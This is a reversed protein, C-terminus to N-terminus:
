PDPGDADDADADDGGDRNLLRDLRYFWRNLQGADEAPVGGVPSREQELAARHRMAALGEYWDRRGDRADPDPTAPPQTLHDAFQDLLRGLGYHHLHRALDDADLSAAESMWAVIEQRLRELDRDRFQLQAFEEEHGDLWDPQRLV